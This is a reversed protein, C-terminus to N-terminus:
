KYQIDFNTSINVDGPTVAISSSKLLQAQFSFKGGLSDVLHKNSSQTYSNSLQGAINLADVKVTIGKATGTNGSYYGNSDWTGRITIYANGFDCSLGLAPSISFKKIDTANNNISELKHTGLCIKDTINGNQELVYNCTPSIVQMGINIDKEVNALINTSFMLGILGILGTLGTLGTLKMM